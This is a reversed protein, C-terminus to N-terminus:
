SFATCPSPLTQRYIQRMLHYTSLFVYCSLSAPIARFHWPACRSLNNLDLAKQNSKQSRFLSNVVKTWFHVCSRFDHIQCVSFKGYLQKQLPNTLQTLHFMLIVVWLLWPLYLLIVLFSYFTLVFQLQLHQFSTLRVSKRLANKKYRKIYQKPSM